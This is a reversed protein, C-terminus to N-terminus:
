KSIEVPHKLSERLEKGLNRGVGGKKNKHSPQFGVSSSSGKSLSKQIQHFPWGLLTEVRPNRQLVLKSKRVWAYERYM